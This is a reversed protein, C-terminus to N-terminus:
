WKVCAYVTKLTLALTKKAKNQWTNCDANGEVEITKFVVM